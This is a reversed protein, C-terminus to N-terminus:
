SNEYIEATVDIDFYRFIYLRIFRMRKKKRTDVRSSDVGMRVIGLKVFLM